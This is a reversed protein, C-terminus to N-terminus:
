PAYIHRFIARHRVSIPAASHNVPLIILSDISNWAPGGFRHVGEYAIGARTKAIGAELMLDYFATDIQDKTMVTGDPFVGRLIYGYDHFLAAGRHLGDPTMFSWFIRPVSAGDVVLGRPILFDHGNVTVPWDRYNQYREQSQYKIPLLLPQEFPVFRLTKHTATCCALSLVLCFSALLHRM